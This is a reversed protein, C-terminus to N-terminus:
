PYPVAPPPGGPPWRRRAMARRRLLLLVAAIVIVLGGIAAVPELSQTVQDIAVAVADGDGAPGAAGGPAQVAATTPLASAAPGGGSQSWGPPLSGAAPQRPGFATPLSTKFSALWAAQFGAVDVGAAAKFAQDDTVGQAYSRILQM